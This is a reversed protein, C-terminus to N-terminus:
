FRLTTSAVHGNGAFRRCGATTCGCGDGVRGEAEGVEDRVACPFRAVEARKKNYGERTMPIYETM